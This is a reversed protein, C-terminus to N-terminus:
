GSVSHGGCRVSPPLGNARAVEVAAVVDETSTCRLILGPQKDVMANWVLRASGYDRHDPGILDGKFRSGLQEALTAAAARRLRSAGRPDHELVRDIGRSAGRV